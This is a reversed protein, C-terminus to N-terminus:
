TFLKTCSMEWLIDAGKESLIKRISISLEAKETARVVSGRTAAEGRGTV